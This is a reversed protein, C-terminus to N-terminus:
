HIYRYYKQREIIEGTADNYFNLGYGLESLLQYEFGRLQPEVDNSAALQALTHQYYDFLQPHADMKPLLRLLIENVYLAAYLQKGTLQTPTSSTEVGTLTKMESRGSWSLLLKTYPQLGRNTKKRYGKALVSVRGLDRAFVDVILSTDGYHRSHLIFAPQLSIRQRM